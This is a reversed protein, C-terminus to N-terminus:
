YKVEVNLKFCNIFVETYVGCAKFTLCMEKSGYKKVKDALKSLENKIKYRM